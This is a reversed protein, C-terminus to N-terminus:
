QSLSKKASKCTRLYLDLFGYCGDFVWKKRKPEQRILITALKQYLTIFLAFCFSRVYDFCVLFIKSINKAGLTSIKILSVYSPSVHRGAVPLNEWAIQCVIKGVIGHYISEM